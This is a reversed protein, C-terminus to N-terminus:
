PRRGKGIGRLELWNTFVIAMVGVSRMSGQPLGRRVLVSIQYLFRPLGVRSVRCQRMGTDDMSLPNERGEWLALCTPLPKLNKAFDERALTVSSDKEQVLEMGVHATSKGQIKSKGFQKESFYRAKLLM